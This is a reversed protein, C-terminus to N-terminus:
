KKTRARANVDQGYKDIQFIESNIEVCAVGNVFSKAQYFIPPIAYQKEDYINTMIKDRDLYGYIGNYNYWGSHFYKSSFNRIRGDHPAYKSFHSVRVLARGDSFQYAEDFAIPTIYKGDKISIFGYYHHYNPYETLRAIFTNEEGFELVGYVPPVVIQGNENVGECVDWDANNYRYDYLKGNNQFGKLSFRLIANGAKDYEIKEAWIDSILEGNKLLINYLTKDYEELYFNKGRVWMIRPVIKYVIKGYNGIAEIEHMEEKLHIAVNKMQNLTEKEEM